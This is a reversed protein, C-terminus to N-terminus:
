VPLRAGSSLLLDVVGSVVCLSVAAAGATLPLGPWTDPDAARREQWEVALYRASFLVLMTLCVFFSVALGGHTAKWGTEQLLFAPLVAVGVACATWRVARDAWFRRGGVWWAALPVLLLMWYVPRGLGSPGVLWFPNWRWRAEELPSQSTALFWMQWVVVVAGPVIFWAALGAREKFLAASRPRALVVLLGLAPALGLTGAPITLTAALSLGLVTWRLRRDSPRDELALVFMVLALYLAVGMTITPSGWIHLPLFGAGAGVREFGEPRQWWSAGAPVLVAPSSAVVGMVGFWAPARGYLPGTGLLGSAAIRALVAATAAVALVLLVTMTLAPSLLLGLLRAPVHFGPHPVSFRFPALSLAAVREWHLEYDNVGRVVVAPDSCLRWSLPASLLGAVVAAVVENSRWGTPVRARDSGSAASSGPTTAGAATWPAVTVVAVAAACLLLLAALPSGTAWWGAGGVVVLGGAATRAASSPRGTRDMGAAVAAGLVGAAVLLAPVRGVFLASCVELAVTAAAGTALVWRRTWPALSLAAAVVVAGALLVVAGHLGQPGHGAVRLAPALGGLLGVALVM